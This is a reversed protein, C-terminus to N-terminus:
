GSILGKTVQCRFQLLKLGKAPTLVLTYAVCLVFSAGWKIGEDLLRKYYTKGSVAKTRIRESLGISYTLQQFYADTLKSQPIHHYIPIDPFYYCTIHQRHLRLFMDKDEAGVLSNGKRGLETNYYGFRQYLERKIITHGTGPYNKFGLKKVEKGQHFYGGILRQTFHSMWQPTTEYVPVVPSAGLEAQPYRKLHADLRTLHDPNVTEDDDAFILFEGKAERIGRNLAFSFGQREEKLYRFQKDSYKAGFEACIEATNDTSNNDVVVIEYDNAPFDQECVARLTQPLQKARNYTCTIFSFKM